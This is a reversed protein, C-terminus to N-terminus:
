LLRGLGEDGFMNLSQLYDIIKDAVEQNGVFHM